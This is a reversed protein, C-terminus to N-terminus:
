MWVADASASGGDSGHGPAVVVGCTPCWPRWELATGCADHHSTAALGHQRAAWGALVGLVDALERGATTLEYALRRPRQQYATSALLRQAELRKLRAALVNPAIGPVDAVLESYRRPGGLLARVVLLSWRDGLQDLALALAPDPLDPRNPRNPHDPRNPRNPRNPRDPHDPRNPRNPM